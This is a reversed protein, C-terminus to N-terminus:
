EMPLLYVVTGIFVAILVVVLWGTWDEGYREPEDKGEDYFESWFNPDDKDKDEM